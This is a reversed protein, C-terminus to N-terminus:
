VGEIYFEVIILGCCGNKIVDGLVKGSLFEGVVVYYIFENCVMLIEVVKVIGDKVVVEEDFIIFLVIKGVYNLNNKVFNEVVVVFVVFLGKMDVVGCGYFINDVIEVFFFLYIWVNEDGVFVVDIYGVFVLCFLDKGYM